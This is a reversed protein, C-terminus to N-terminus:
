LDFMSGATQVLLENQTGIEAKEKGISGVQEKAFELAAWEEVKQVLQHFEIVFVDKVIETGEEIKKVMKEFASEPSVSEPVKLFRQENPLKNTSVWYLIMSPIDKKIHNKVYERVSIQMASDNPAMFTWAFPKQTEWHDIDEYLNNYAPDRNYASFHLNNYMVPLTM